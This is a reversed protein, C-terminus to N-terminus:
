RVLSPAYAVAYLTYGAGWCLGAAVVTGVYAAPFALAGFVRILAALTVLVYCALDRRDANLPRGTHGRATRTMMGITLGGIAGITLAHVALPEPVLDLAALARLALHVVLWGYGAHLIWVLPTRLTRWPQWLALRAAHVLALAAALAAVIAAPLQ